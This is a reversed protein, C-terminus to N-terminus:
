CLKSIWILYHIFHQTQRRPTRAPGPGGAAAFGSTAVHCESSLQLADNHETIPSCLPCRRAADLVFHSQTVAQSLVLEAKPSAKAQKEPPINGLHESSQSRLHAPASSPADEPVRGAGPVVSPHPCFAWSPAIEEATNGILESLGDECLWVKVRRCQLM